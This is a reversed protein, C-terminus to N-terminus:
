PCPAQSGPAFRARLASVMESACQLFFGLATAAQGLAIQASLVVARGFAHRRFPILPMLAYFGPSELPPAAGDREAARTRFLRAGRGYGLQQRCYAFVDLRHGHVVLSRESPVIRFGARIWRACLDRDEGGAIGWAPDLGGVAAFERAPFAANCTPVYTTRPRNVRALLHELLLHSAEPWSSQHLGNLLAGAVACGPSAACVEELCQLWHPAPRCDDDTFALWQGRAQKAGAQRAGSCGTHVHTLLKLQLRDRFPEVVADLPAAGGDDVLVVEFRERPYTQRALAELLGAVEAPRDYTPVVVSFFLAQAAETDDRRLAPAPLPFATAAPSPVEARNVAVPRGQARSEIAALAIEVARAGEIPGCGPAHRGLAADAFSQWAARYSDLYGGGRSMSVLGRPLTRLFHASRHLRAGPGGPVAARPLFELGEFRLCDLRLRGLSGCIEIEIEHSARESLIATALAGNDLTAAVVANEDDRSGDRALAFTERVETDLLFRWLDFHHVGIEFLAGGGSTRRHRWAPLGEDDRPSNWVSRISEIRGLKGSRVAERAERILRHWRMHFGTVVIGRASRSAEVIRSCDAATLALPKDIWVHKGARIAAEAAAAHHEPPLAVAVADVGPIALLSEVDAVRCPVRFADAVQNRRAADTDAVALVRIGRVRALAPLHKARTVEGCGAIALGLGTNSNVM